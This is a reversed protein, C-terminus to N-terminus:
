KSLFEHIKQIEKLNPDAQKWGLLAQAFEKQAGDSDNKHELMLGTALRSGPYDPARETLLRTFREAVEWDGMKRASEAIRELQYVGQIWADPGNAAAIRKAVNQLIPLAEDRRGEELLLQARL